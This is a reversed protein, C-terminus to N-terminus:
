SINMSLFELAIFWIPIYSISILFVGVDICYTGKLAALAHKLAASVLFIVGYFGILLYIQGLVEQYYARTENMGSDNYIKLTIWCTASACCGIYLWILLKRQINLNGIAYMILPVYAIRKLDDIDPLGGGNQVKAWGFRNFVLGFQISCVILLTVARFRYSDIKSIRKQIKPSM